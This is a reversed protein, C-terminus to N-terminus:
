LSAHTLAVGPVASDQLLDPPSPSQMCSPSHFPCAHSLFTLLRERRKEGGGSKRKTGESESDQGEEVVRGRGRGQERRARRQCTLNVWPSVLELWVAGVQPLYTRHEEGRDRKM